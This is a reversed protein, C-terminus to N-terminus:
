GCVAVYQFLSIQNVFLRSEYDIVPERVSGVRTAVVRYAALVAEAIALLGNWYWCLRYLLSRADDTM